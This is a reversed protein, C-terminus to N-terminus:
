FDKPESLLKVLENRAIEFNGTISYLKEREKFIMFTPMSEISNVKCSEKNIDVDIKIVKVKDKYEKALEEVVPYARICPGCWTATFM